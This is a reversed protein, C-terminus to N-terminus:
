QSDAEERKYTLREILKQKALEGLSEESYANQFFEETTCVSYGNLNVEGAEDEEYFYLHVYRGNNKTVFQMNNVKINLPKIMEIEMEM